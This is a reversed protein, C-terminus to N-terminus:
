SQNSITRKKYLEACGKFWPIFIFIRVFIPSINPVTKTNIMLYIMMVADLSFLLLGIALPWFKKERFGVMLLILLIGGMILNYVGMGLRLLIDVNAVIAITGVVLNLGCIFAMIQYATKIRTEPHSASGEVIQDNLKIQLEIPFAKMKLELRSGDKASYVIGKELEKRKPWTGLLEDGLWIEKPKFFGVRKFQLTEVQGNRNVKYNM